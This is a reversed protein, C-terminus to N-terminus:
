PQKAKIFEKINRAEIAENAAREEMRHKFWAKEKATFINAEDYSGCYTINMDIWACLKDWEEQSLKVDQHGKELMSIIPSAISGARMPPYPKMLEFRTWWKLYHNPEDDKAKGERDWIKGYLSFEEPKPGPRAKTLNYYSPMWQKKADPDDILPKATLVLKKGKGDPNHCSVCHKDFIPQVEAPYSFGRPPGYFPKLEEIGVKMAQTRRAALQDPTMTKEEHCGVCSFNENPMLTAWSRMTQLVRNKEDLLQFYIPVRAPIRFMASGDAYVTADGIIRKADFPGIPHGPNTVTHRAGGPGAGMGWGITCPKYLIEVVRIKKIAGAAIGQSAVGLYANQMFIVGNDKRYDVTSTRTPPRPRPM